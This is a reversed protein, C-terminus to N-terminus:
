KSPENEEPITRKISEPNTKSAMRQLTEDIQRILADAKDIKKHADTIKNIKKMADEFSEAFMIKPASTIIQNSDEIVKYCQNKYYLLANVINRTRTFVVTGDDGRWEYYKDEIFLQAMDNEKTHM